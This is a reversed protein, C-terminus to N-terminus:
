HLTLSNSHINVMDLESVPGMSKILMNTKIVTPEGSVHEKPLHAAFFQM